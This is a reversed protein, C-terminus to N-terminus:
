CAAEGFYPVVHQGRRRQRDPVRVERLHLSSKHLATRLGGSWALMAPTTSWSGLTMSTVHIRTRPQLLPAPTLNTVQTTVTSWPRGRLRALGGTSRALRPEESGVPLGPRDHSPLGRGSCRRPPRLPLPSRASRCSFWGFLATWRSHRSALFRAARGREHRRTAPRGGREPDRSGSGSPRSGMPPDQRAVM